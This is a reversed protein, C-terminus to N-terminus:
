IRSNRSLKMSDPRCIANRNAHNHYGYPWVAVVRSNTTLRGGPIMLLARASCKEANNADLAAGVLFPLHHIDALAAYLTYKPYTGSHMKLQSKRLIVLLSAGILYDPPAPLHETDFKKLKHQVTGNGAAGRTGRTV